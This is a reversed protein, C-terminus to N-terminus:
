LKAGPATGQEQLRKQRVAAEDLRLAQLALAHDKLDIRFAGARDSDRPVYSEFIVWWLNASGCQNSFSGLSGSRCRDGQRYAPDNAQVSGDPGYVYTESPENRNYIAPTYPSKGYKQEVSEAMAAKVPRADGFYSVDRHIGLSVNGSAPASFVVNLTDVLEFKGPQNPDPHRVTFRIFNVYPQNTGPDIATGEQYQGSADLKTVIARVQDPTQDTRVGLIDVQEGLPTPTPTPLDAARAMGGVLGAVIVVPMLNLSGLLNM